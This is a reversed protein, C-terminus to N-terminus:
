ERIFANERPDLTIQYKIPMAPDRDEKSIQAIVFPPRIKLNLLFIVIEECLCFINQWVTQLINEISLSDVLPFIPKVVGESSVLYKTKPLVFGHHEIKIRLKNFTKYWTKRHESIFNMLRIFQESNNEELFKSKGKEFKEDEAFIFSMKYGFFEALFIIRDTAIIGRIFFDKFLVNLEMEISEDLHITKGNFKALKGEGVDAAHEKMLDICKEKVFRGETLNQLIPSYLQDFKNRKEEDGQFINDRINFVQFMMRVYYPDKKNDFDAVKQVTGNPPSNYGM